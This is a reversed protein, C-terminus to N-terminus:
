VAPASKARDRFYRAVSAPTTLTPAGPLRNGDKDSPLWYGNATKLALGIVQGADDIVRYIDKDVREAKM